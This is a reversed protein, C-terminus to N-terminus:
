LVTHVPQVQLGSVQVNENPQKDTSEAPESLKRIDWWLLQGDTSVSAVMSGTKSVTWFVDYVPDHHSLEIISSEFPLSGSKRLDFFSILGNYCGGVLTETSKPNFRM